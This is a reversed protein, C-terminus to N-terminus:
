EMTYEFCLKDLKINNKYYYMLTYPATNLSVEAKVLEAFGGLPVIRAEADASSDATIEKFGLRKYFATLGSDAPKLFIFRETSKKLKELLESMLGKGRYTGRTAAAYVYYSETKFGGYYLVCPLAFLMSATVGGYELSRIYGGCLKFLRDEFATDEDKFAERYIERLETENM